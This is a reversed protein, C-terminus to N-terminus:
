PSLDADLFAPTAPLDVLLGDSVDVTVTARRIRCDLVHGGQTRDASVFHFHYGPLNLGEAYAPFWFGAMTGSTEELDFVVQEALVEALTRYPPQQGAESRVELTQFSGEVKVAYFANPSPLLTDLFRYLAACPIPTTLTASLDAEFPTVVAFPTQVDAAAVNVAGDVGVRYVEGGLVIMEGDVGNFTGLGFDGHRLLEAVSVDAAFVGASLAPLTSVQYLLDAGSERAPQALAGSVVAASVTLWVLCHTM